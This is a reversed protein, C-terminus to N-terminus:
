EREALAKIHHAGARFANKMHSTMFKKNKCGCTLHIDTESM